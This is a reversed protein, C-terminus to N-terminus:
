RSGGHRRRYARTKRRNGCIAMSCWTASRNKSYDYYAWACQRCAKLRHWTGGAMAEYVLALIRGLAGDVGGAQPALALHGHEDLEMTLRARNAALELAEAAQPATRQENNAILLERLTERFEHVRQVEAPSPADRGDLHRESLWGQLEAPTGLWERGHELDVSNVLEQVIRLPEPAAKPVDYRPPLRRSVPLVLKGTDTPVTRILSLGQSPCDRPLSLGESGGPWPQAARRRRTGDRCHCGHFTMRFVCTRTQEDEARARGLEVQERGRALAPQEHNGDIPISGSRTKLECVSPRQDGGVVFGCNMAEGLGLPDVADDGAAVGCDADRRADRPPARQRMGEVRLRRHACARLQPLALPEDLGGDRVDRPPEGAVPDLVEALPRLQLDVPEREVAAKVLEGGGRPAFGRHEGCRRDGGEADARSRGLRVDPDCGLAELHDLDDRSESGVRRRGAEGGQDDRGSEALPDGLGIEYAESRGM